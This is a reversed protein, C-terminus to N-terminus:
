ATGFFQEGESPDFDIIDEFGGGLFIHNNDAIAIASIYCTGSEIFKKAWLIEGNPSQKMIFPNLDNNSGDLREAITSGDLISTHSFKGITILNSLLDFRVQSAYGGGDGPTQSLLEHQWLTQMTSFQGYSFNLLISAAIVPLGAFHKIVLVPL